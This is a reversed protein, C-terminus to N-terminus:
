AVGAVGLQSLLANERCNRKRVLPLNLHLQNKFRTGGVERGWFGGAASCALGRAGQAWFSGCQMDGLVPPTCPAATSM